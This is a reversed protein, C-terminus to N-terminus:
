KVRVYGKYAKPNFAPIDASTSWASVTGTSSPPCCEYYQDTAESYAYWHWRYWGESGLPYKGYLSVLPYGIDEGFHCLMHPSIFSDWVMSKFFPIGEETVLSAYGSNVTCTKYRSNAELYTSIAVMKEHKTMSSNTTKKIISARWAKYEKLTDRVTIKGLYKEGSTTYYNNPDSETVTVSFTGPTDICYTKIYGGSVKKTDTILNGEKIDGYDTTVSSASVKKGKSNYFSLNFRKKGTNKTEVYVPVSEGTYPVQLFSAKYSYKVPAAVNFRVTRKGTLSGKGTITVSGGYRSYKLTYDRNKKLKTSGLKVTPAPKPQTGKATTNYVPKAFTVTASKISAKKIKFTVTKTGKYSGIGKLVVRAKSSVKKNSKNAIKYDTGSKLVKGKLKVTMAPKIYSGTYAYTKKKLKVKASAISVKKKAPAAKTTSAPAVKGASLTAAQATQPAIVVGSLGLTLACLVSILLTAVKCPAVPSVLNRSNM